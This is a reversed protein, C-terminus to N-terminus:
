EIKFDIGTKDNSLSLWLPRKLVTLYLTHGMEKLSRNLMFTDHFDNRNFSINQSSSICASFSHMIPYINDQEIIM